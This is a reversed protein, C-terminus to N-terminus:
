KRIGGRVRELADDLQSKLEASPSNGLEYQWNVDAVLRLYNLIADSGQGVKLEVGMDRGLREVSNAWDHMSRTRLQVEIRRESRTVIKHVARYGSEKPESIYDRSKLKHKDGRWANDLHAEYRRLDEINNFVVRAGGIDEMRALM